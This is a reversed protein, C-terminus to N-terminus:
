STQTKQTKKNIQKMNEDHSFNDIIENATRHKQVEETFDRVAEKQADSADEKLHRQGEKQISKDIMDKKIDQRHGEKDVHEQVNSAIKKWKEVEISISRYLDDKSQSIRRFNKKCMKQISENMYNQLNDRIVELNQIPDDVDKNPDLHPLANCFGVDVKIQEQTDDKVFIQETPKDIKVKALQGQVELPRNHLMLKVVHLLNNRKVGSINNLKNKNKCEKSSADIDEQYESNLQTDTRNSDLISEVSVRKIIDNEILFRKIATDTIYRAHPVHDDKKMYLTKDMLKSASDNKKIALQFLMYLDTKLYEPFSWNPSGGGVQIM